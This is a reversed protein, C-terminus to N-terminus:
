ESVTVEKSVFWYKGYQDVNFEMGWPSLYTDDHLPYFKLVERTCGQMMQFQFTDIQYFDLVNNVFYVQYTFNEREVYSKLFSDLDPYCEAYCRLRFKFMTLQNHFPVTVM